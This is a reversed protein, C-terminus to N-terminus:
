RPQSLRNEPSASDGEARMRDFAAERPAEGRSMASATGTTTPQSLRNAAHGSDGETRMPDFGAARPKDGQAMAGTARAMGPQSLKNGANSSDGETRMRDQAIAGGAATALTISVLTAALRLTNM